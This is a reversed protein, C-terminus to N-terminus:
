HLRYRFRPNFRLINERMDIRRGGRLKPTIPNMVRSIEYKRMAEPDLRIDDVWRRHWGLDQSYLEVSTPSRNYTNSSITITTISDTTPRHIVRVYAIVTTDTSGQDFTSIFIM